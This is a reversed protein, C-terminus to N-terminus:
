FNWSFLKLGSVKGTVPDRAYNLFEKDFDGPAFPNIPDLKSHKKVPELKISAAITQGQLLGAIADDNTQSPTETTTSNLLDQPLIWGLKDQSKAPAQEKTQPRAAAGYAFMLTLLVCYTRM